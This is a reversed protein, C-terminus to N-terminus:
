IFKRGAGLTGRETQCEKRREHQMSENGRKWVRKGLRGRSNWQLYFKCSWFGSGGMKKKGASQLGGGGEGFKDEEFWGVQWIGGGGKQHKKKFLKTSSYMRAGLQTKIQGQEAENVIFM